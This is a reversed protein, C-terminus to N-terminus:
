KISAVSEKVADKICDDILKSTKRYLGKVYKAAGITAHKQAASQTAKKEIAADFIFKFVIDKTM